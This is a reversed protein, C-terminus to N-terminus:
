LGDELDGERCFDERINNEKECQLESHMTLGGREPSRSNLYSHKQREWRFALTKIAPVNDQDDKVQAMTELEITNASNVKVM